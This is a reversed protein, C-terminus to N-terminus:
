RLPEDLRCLGGPGTDFLVTTKAGQVLVALGWATELDERGPVNDVVVTLVLNEVTAPCDIVGTDSMSKGEGGADQGAAPGALAIAMAWLM